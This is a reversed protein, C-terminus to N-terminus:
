GELYKIFGTQPVQGRLPIENRGILPSCCEQCRWPMASFCSDSTERGTRPSKLGVSMKWPSNETSDLARFIVNLQSPKLLHASLGNM